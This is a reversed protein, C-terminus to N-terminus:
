SDGAPILRASSRIPRGLWEALAEGVIRHAKPTWHADLEYFLDRSSARRFLDEQDLCVAPNCVSPVRASVGEVRFTRFEIGRARSEAAIAEMVFEHYAARFAASSALAQQITELPLAAIETGAAIAASGDRDLGARQEALSVFARMLNFRVFNHLASHEVLWDDGAFRFTPVDLLGENEFRMKGRATVTRTLSQVRVPLRDEGLETRKWGIEDVDNACLVVLVLDPDLAFGRSRLFLLYQDASYGPVGANTVEVPGSGGARAALVSAFTEVDEVGWGFAFSDGVILIRRAPSTSRASPEPHVTSRYGNADTSVRVSFDFKEHVGSWSPRLAHSLVPDPRFVNFHHKTDGERKVTDRQSRVRLVAEAAVVCVLLSAFFLALSPLVNRRM